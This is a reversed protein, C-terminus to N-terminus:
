TGLGIIVSAMLLFPLGPLAFMVTTGAAATLLGIISMRTGGFRDALRGAPLAAVLAPLAFTSAVVGLFVPEAGAELARYGTM